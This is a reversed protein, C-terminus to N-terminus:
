RIYIIDIFTSDQPTFLLTITKGSVTYHTGRMILQGQYYAWIAYGGGSVTYTTTVTTTASSVAKTEHQVNGMGGGGGGGKDSKKRVERKLTALEEALGKIVSQDVSETTTNLREAIVEAKLKEPVAVEKIIPQEKVVETREVIKEVIPIEIAKIAEAIKADLQSLLLKHEESLTSLDSSTNDTVESLFTQLHEIHEDIYARADSSIRQEAEDISKVFTDIAQESKEIAIALKLVDEDIRPKKLETMVGELQRLLEQAKRETYGQPDKKKQVYDKISM